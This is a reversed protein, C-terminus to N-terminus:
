PSEELIPELEVALKELDVDQLSKLVAVNIGLVPDCWYNPQCELTRILEGRTAESWSFWYKVVALAKKAESWGEPAKEDTDVHINKTM